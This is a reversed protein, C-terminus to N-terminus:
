SLLVHNSALNSVSTGHGNWHHEICDNCGWRGNRVSEHSAATSIIISIFQGAIARAAILAEMSPAIGCLLTGFTFLALALLMAAKRGLIDALRGISRHRILCLPRWHRFPSRVMFLPLVASALCTVPASTLLMIPNNLTAGSRRTPLKLRRKHGTVAHPELKPITYRVPTMLTAAITGIRIRFDPFTLSVFRRSVM